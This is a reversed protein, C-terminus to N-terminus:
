EEPLDFFELEISEDEKPTLCFAGKYAIQLDEAEAAADILALLTEAKAQEIDENFYLDICNATDTFKLIFLNHSVFVLDDHEYTVDLGIQQVVRILLGLPRHSIPM